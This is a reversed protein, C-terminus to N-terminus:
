KKQEQDFIQETAVGTSATDISYQTAVGQTTAAQDVVTSQQQAAGANHAANSLAQSTAQYLNGMANAPADGLVKVNAQAVSTSVSMARRQPAAAPAATKRHAPTISRKVREAPKTQSQHKWEKATASPMPLTLVAIALIFAKRM